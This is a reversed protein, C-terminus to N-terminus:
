MPSADHLSRHVRRHNASHNNAEWSPSQGTYKQWKRFCIDTWCGLIRWPCLRGSFRLIGMMSIWPDWKISFSVQLQYVSM